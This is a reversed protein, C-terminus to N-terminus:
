WCSMDDNNKMDPLHKRKLGNDASESITGIINHMGLTYTKNM